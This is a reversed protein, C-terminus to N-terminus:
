EWVELQLKALLFALRWSKFTNVNFRHAFLFELHMRSRKTGRKSSWSKLGQPPTEDPRVGRRDDADIPDTRFAASFNRWYHNLLLNGKEDTVANDVSLEKTLAGLDRPMALGSSKSALKAVATPRKLLLRAKGAGRQKAGSPKAVGAHSSSPSAHPEPAGRRRVVNRVGRSGDGDPGLSTTGDDAEPAAERQSARIEGRSGGCAPAPSARGVDTDSTRSRRPVKRSDKSGGRAPVSSSTGRDVSSARPRQSASRRSGDRPTAPLATGDDAEAAEPRESARSSGILGDPAQSAVEGAVKGM